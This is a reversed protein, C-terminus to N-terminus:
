SCCERLRSTVILGSPVSPTSCATGGSQFGWGADSAQDLVRRYEGLSLASGYRHEDSLGRLDVVGVRLELKKM